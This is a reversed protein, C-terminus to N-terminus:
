CTLKVCTQAITQVTAVIVAAAAAVVVVVVVVVVVAVVVALTTRVHAITQATANELGEAIKIDKIRGDTTAATHLM